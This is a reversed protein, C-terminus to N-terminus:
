FSSIQQRKFEDVFFKVKGYDAKKIKLELPTPKGKPWGKKVPRIIEDSDDPLFQSEFYQLLLYYEKDCLFPKIILPSARRNDGEKSAPKDNRDRHSWTVMAAAKRQSSRFQIPLGFIDNVLDIPENAKNDLYPSIYKCYDITKSRSGPQTNPQTRVKRLECGIFDLAEEWSNWGKNSSNGIISGHRCSFSDYESMVQKRDTMYTSSSLGVYDSFIKEIVKINETFYRGFDGIMQPKDFNLKSLNSNTQKIRFSGFGRRSRSGVAGFNELLWLCACAVDLVENKTGPRNALTINFTSGTNIFNRNLQYQKSNKDWKYFSFGLYLIGQTKQTFFPVAKAKNRDVKNVKIERLEISVDSAKSNSQDLTSGFIENEKIRITKWDDNLVKGMMARFWYRMAGKISPARLEADQQDAGSMFLPTIFEIDFSYEKM